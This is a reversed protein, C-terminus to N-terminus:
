QILNVRQINLCRKDCFQKMSVNDELWNLFERTYKHESFELSQYESENHREIYWEMFMECLVDGYEQTKNILLAALKRVSYHKRPDYTFFLDTGTPEHHLRYITM